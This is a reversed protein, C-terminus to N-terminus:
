IDSWNIPRKLSEFPSLFLGFHVLTVIKWWFSLIGENAILSIFFLSFIKVIPKQRFLREIKYHFYKLWHHVIKNTIPDDKMKM